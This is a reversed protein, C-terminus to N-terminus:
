VLREGMALLSRTSLFFGSRLMPAVESWAPPRALDAPRCCPCTPSCLSCAFLTHDARQQLILAVTPLAASHCSASGSPAFVIQCGLLGTRGLLREWGM